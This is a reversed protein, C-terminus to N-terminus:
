GHSSRRMDFTTEGSRQPRAEQAQRIRGNAQNVSTGATLGAIIGIAAYVSGLTALEAAKMVGAAICAMAPILLAIGLMSGAYLNGLGPLLLSLLTAVGANRTKRGEQIMRKAGDTIFERDRAKMEKEPKLIDDVMEEDLGLRFMTDELDVCGTQDWDARGSVIVKGMGPKACPRPAKAGSATSRANEATARSDASDQGSQTARPDAAASPFSQEDQGAVAEPTVGSLTDTDFGAAEVEDALCADGAEAGRGFDDPYSPLDAFFDDESPTWEEDVLVPKENDEDAVTPAPDPIDPAPDTQAETPETEIRWQEDLVLSADDEDSAPEPASESTPAAVPAPDDDRPAKGTEALFEFVESLPKAEQGDVPMAAPAVFEGPAIPMPTDPSLAAVTRLVANIHEEESIEGRARRATSDAVKRALSDLLLVFATDIPKDSSM